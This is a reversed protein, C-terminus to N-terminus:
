GGTESGLNLMAQAIDPDETVPPRLHTYPQYSNRMVEHAQGQANM